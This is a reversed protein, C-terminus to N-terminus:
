RSPLQKTTRLTEVFRKFGMADALARVRRFGDGYVRDPNNEIGQARYRSEDTALESYFRYSLLECFGEEAWLPLSKIGQVVLWVHGLEHITVGQFLTPPLGRLVAIGDVQTQVVQGNLTHTTSLTVGLSHPEAHSQLLTALKPRDVFELSLHLNNYMLGQSNVWQILR